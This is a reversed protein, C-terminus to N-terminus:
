SCKTLMLHKIHSTSTTENTEFDAHVIWRGHENSYNGDPPSEVFVAAIRDVGNMDLCVIPAAGRRHLPVKQGRLFEQIKMGMGKRWPPLFKMTENGAVTRLSFSAQVDSSPVPISLELFFSNRDTDSSADKASIFGLDWGLKQIETLSDDDVTSSRSDTLFLIDGNREVDWCDGISMKWQRRDPYTSIQQCIARLKEYSLSVIGNSEERVWKFLAEEEVVDLEGDHPPLVFHGEDGGEASSELYINARKSVDYKLKRSQEQIRDLRSELVEKGGVLDNLLPVLENRVRNRLYKASANSEDERWHLNQQTLFDSIESKRVELMPKAFYILNNSENKAPGQVIDMGSINTIHVGRLIKLLMTEESDDKHHATFIVGRGDNTSGIITNMLALSKSRRWDRAVEQSFRGNADSAEDGWYYCYFGIGNEKCLDQVFIRDGDSENGRQRHDFHVVHIQCSVVRSSDGYEYDFGMGDRPKLLQLISHFLAISDCGGSVGLLIVLPPCSKSSGDLIQPLIDHGICSHIKQLFTDLKKRRGGDDENENAKNAYLSFERKWNGIQNLHPVKPPAFSSRSSYNYRKQNTSKQIMSSRRASEVSSLAVPTMKRNIASPCQRHIRSMSRRVAFAPMINLPTTTLLFASSHQAFSCSILLHFIRRRPHNNFPRPKIRCEDTMLYIIDNTPTHRYASRHFTSPELKKLSWEVRDGVISKIYQEFSKLAELYGCIKYYGCITYTFFRNHRNVRVEWGEEESPMKRAREQLPVLCSEFVVPWADGNNKRVRFVFM